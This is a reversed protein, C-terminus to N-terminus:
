ENDWGDEVEDEDEDDPGPQLAEVREAAAQIRDHRRKDVQVRALAKLICVIGRKTVYDEFESIGMEEDIKKYDYVQGGMGTYLESLIAETGKRLKRNNFELQPMIGIADADESQEYEM